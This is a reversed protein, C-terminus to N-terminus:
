KTASLVCLLGGGCRAEVEILDCVVQPVFTVLDHHLQKPATKKEILCM